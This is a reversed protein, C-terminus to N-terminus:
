TTCNYYVLIKHLLISLLVIAPVKHFGSMPLPDMRFVSKIHEILSPEISIRRQSYIVQGLVSQYICVIEIGEKSTIGYRKVPCVLDIELTKKSYEYLNKDDYGPDAVM